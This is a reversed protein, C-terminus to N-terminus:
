GGIRDVGTRRRALLAGWLGRLAFPLNRGLYRGGLRGPEQSLRHLWELGLRQVWLPARAVDGSVFSLSIGCGLWWVSPFRGRLRDILHETKPSGFAVFVLDPRAEALAAEIEDAQAASPPVDLRPALHGCVVLGPHRETLVRAAAQAVGEDGSLLFLRRGGPAVAAALSGVLDSGAVRGPFPCGALSAMWLLPMGDAVRLDARGYLARIEPDQAAQQVLEVNPTLIWGGQGRALGDLVRAVVESRDIRHLALGFIELTEAM